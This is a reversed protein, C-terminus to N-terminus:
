RRKVAGTVLVESGYLQMPMLIGKYKDRKADRSLGERKWMKRLVGSVKKGDSL